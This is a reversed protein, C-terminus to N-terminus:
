EENNREMLIAGERVNVEEVWSEVGEQKPNLDRGEIV